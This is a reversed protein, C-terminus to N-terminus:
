LRRLQVETRKWLRSCPVATRSSTIYPPRRGADHLGQGAPPLVHQQAEEGEARAQGRASIGRAHPLAM